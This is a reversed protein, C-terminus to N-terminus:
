LLAQGTLHIDLGSLKVAVDFHDRAMASEYYFYLLHGAELHFEIPIRSGCCSAGSFMAKGNVQLICIVGPDYIIKTIMQVCGTVGDTLLTILCFNLKNLCSAWSNGLYGITSKVPESM